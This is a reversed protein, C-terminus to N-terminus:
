KGRRRSALRHAAKGHTVDKTMGTLLDKGVKLGSVFVSTM